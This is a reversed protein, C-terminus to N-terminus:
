HDDADDVKLYRKIAIQKLTSKINTATKIYSIVQIWKTLGGFGFLCAFALNIMIKGEDQPNQVMLSFWIASVSWALHFLPNTITSSEARKRLAKILCYGCILFKIVSIIITSYVTFTM